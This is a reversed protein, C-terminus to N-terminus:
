ARLTDLFSPEPAPLVRDVQAKVGGLAPHALDALLNRWVRPILEIYRRKGDVRALRAFVGLIRLNRQVGLCALQPGIEHGIGARDAFYQTMRDVLDVSVDRRVDRLLSVLDYGPPTIFADQFDLLGVRDTGVHDPRWILNEAHFDRLAITDPPPLLAVMAATVAAALDDISGDAYHSLPAMMAGGQAPTLCPLDMDPVKGSLHLLVDIAARYLMEADDPSRRLWRAFDWDGLDSIVMLGADPDHALIHPPCLGERQLYRAVNVFPVTSQPASPDDMLIVSQGAHCLRGYRRASADGAIPVNEWEAWVTPALFRGIEAARDSM